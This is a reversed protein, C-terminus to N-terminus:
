VFNSTELNNQDFTISSFDKPNPEFFPNIWLINEQMYLSSKGEVLYLIQRNSNKNFILLSQPMNQDRTNRILLQKPSGSLSAM